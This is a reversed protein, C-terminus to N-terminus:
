GPNGAELDRVSQYGLRPEDSREAKGTETVDLVFGVHDGFAVRDRITGAFWDCGDLVPAGGPGPAWSCSAFKDVHEDTETEEGFLAALAHDQRHLAHVVLTAARSAVGFTRNATSLCVLFRAPDISCQTSFGVLCGAHEGDAAATVVYMPSDIRAALREFPNDTMTWVDVRGRVTVIRVANDCRRAAMMTRTAVGTERRSASPRSPAPASAAASTAHPPPDESEAADGGFEDDDPAADDPGDCDEPDDGDVVDHTSM